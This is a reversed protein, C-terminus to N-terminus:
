IAQSRRFIFTRQVSFSILSLAGEIVVKAALVNVGLRQVSASILLYSIAALAIALTYYRWLATRVNLHSHFVFRRNLLFNVLSSLRGVAVSLLINHTAAFTLMFGALDIAAAIIASFYFRLLVFYIRMSDVIPDFHSSRNGEIYVTEIPVEIPRHGHRCLYALVGMEYEYREGELALLPRLDGVCFGRLGTQTDTLRVGTLLAFVRKTLTNGFRSRLPVETAFSRVGLVVEKTELVKLAVRVVDAALHQGDADSTVVAEIQPHETLVTNFATKLARGKGLNVAHRILRVSAPLQQLLEESNGTSGDDVVLLLGFCAAQLQDILRLLSVEPQWAPIIVAVRHLEAEPSITSLDM